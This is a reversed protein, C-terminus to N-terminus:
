RRAKRRTCRTYIYSIGRAVAQLKRRLAASREGEIVAAMVWRAVPEGLHAALAAATGPSLRGQHKAASLANASLGLTRSLVALKEGAEEAKVILSLTQM